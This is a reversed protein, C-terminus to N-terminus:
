RNRVIYKELEKRREAIAGTNNGTEIHALTMLDNELLQKIDRSLESIRAGQGKLMREHNDLRKKDNAFMDACIKSRKDIEGLDGKIDEIPKSVAKRIPKSARWMWSVAVSITTLAVCFAIFEGIPLTIENPM